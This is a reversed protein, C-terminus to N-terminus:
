HADDPSNPPMLILRGDVPFADLQVIFGDGSKTEWAAGIRHWFGRGGKKPNRVNYAILDPKGGTPTENSESM